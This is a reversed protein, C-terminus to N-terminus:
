SNIHLLHKLVFAVNSQNREEIFEKTGEETYLQLCVACKYSKVGIHMRTHCKICRSSFAAGCERCKFPKKGTLIRRHNIISFKELFFHHVVIMM